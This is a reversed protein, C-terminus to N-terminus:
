PRVMVRARASDASRLRREVPPVLRLTSARAVTVNPDNSITPHARVELVVLGGGGALRERGVVVVELVDTEVTGADVAGTFLDVVVM